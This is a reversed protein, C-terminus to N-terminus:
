QCVAVFPPKSKGNDIYGTGCDLCNFKRNQSHTMDFPVDINALEPIVKRAAELYDMDPFGFYFARHLGSCGSKKPYCAASNLKAASPVCASECTDPDTVMEECDGCNPAPLRITGGLRGGLTKRSFADCKSIAKSEAPNAKCLWEMTEYDLYAAQGGPCTKQPLPDMCEWYDNKMIATQRSGCLPRRAPDSICANTQSDWITDGTCIINKNERACQWRSFRFIKIEDPGCIVSDAPNAAAFIAHGARAYQTVYVLQGVTLNAEKVVIQPIERRNGHGSLLYYGDNMSSLIGFSKIDSFETALLELFEGVDDDESVDSFTIIYNIISKGPQDPICNASIKREEACIKVTEINYKVACITDNDIEARFDIKVNEDLKVAEKHVHAICTLLSNKETKKIAEEIGHEQLRQSPSDLFYFGAMFLFVVIMIFINM